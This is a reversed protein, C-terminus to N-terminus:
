ARKIKSRPLNTYINLIQGSKGKRPYKIKDTYLFQMLLEFPRAEADRIIVDLMPLCRSTKQPGSTNEQKQQVNQGDEEQDQNEQQNLM